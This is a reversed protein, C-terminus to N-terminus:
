ASGDAGQRSSAALARECLARLAEVQRQLVAVAERAKASTELERAAQTILPYGYGGAAGKIQHATRALTEFDQSRLAQGM